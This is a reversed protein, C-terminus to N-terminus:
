VHICYRYIIYSWVCMLQHYVESAFLFCGKPDEELIREGEGKQELFFSARDEDPNKM